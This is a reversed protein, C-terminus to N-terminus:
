SLRATVGGGLGKGGRRSAPSDVASSSTPSMVMPWRGCCGLTSVVKLSSPLYRSASGASSARSGNTSGVSGSSTARWSRQGSFGCLSLPSDDGGPVEFPTGDGSLLLTPDLPPTPTLGLILSTLLAQPHSYYPTVSRDAEQFRADKRPFMPKRCRSLCECAASKAEPHRKQDRHGALLKCLRLQPQIYGCPFPISRLVNYLDNEFVCKRTQVLTYSCM